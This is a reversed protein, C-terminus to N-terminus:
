IYLAFHLRKDLKSDSMDMSSLAVTACHIKWDFIVVILRTDSYQIYSNSSIDRTM